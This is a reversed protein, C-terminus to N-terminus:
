CIEQAARAEEFRGSELADLKRDILREITSENRLRLGERILQGDSITRVKDVDVSMQLKEYIYQELDKGNNFEM